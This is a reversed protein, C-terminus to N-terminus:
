GQPRKKTLHYAGITRTPLRHGAHHSPQHRPALRRAPRFGVRVALRTLTQGLRQERPEHAVGTARQLLSHRVVPKPASPPDLYGVACGHRHRVGGVVLSCIRLRCFLFGALTKRDRPQHHHERQRAACHEFCRESTILALLRALVRQQARQLLGEFRAVHQQRVAIEATIKVDGVPLLAADIHHRTQVLPARAVHTAAALQAAVIM